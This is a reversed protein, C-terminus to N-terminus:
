KCQEVKILERAAELVMELEEHDFRLKGNEAISPQSILFFLGGAEDELEIKTVSEGYIPNDTDLHVAMATVTKTYPM